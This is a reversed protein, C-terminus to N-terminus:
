AEIQELKELAYDLKSAGKGEKNKHWKYDCFDKYIMARNYLGIRAPM